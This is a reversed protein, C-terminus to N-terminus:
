SARLANVVSRRAGTATPLTVTMGCNCLGCIEVNVDDKEDSENAECGRSGCCDLVSEAINADVTNCVLLKEEVAASKAGLLVNM